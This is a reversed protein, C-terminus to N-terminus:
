GVAAAKHQSSCRKVWHAFRTFSVEGVGLVSCHPALHFGPGCHFCPLPCALLFHCEVGRALRQVHFGERGLWNVRVCEERDVLLCAVASAPRACAM